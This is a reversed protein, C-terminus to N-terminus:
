PLQYRGELPIIPQFFTPLTRGAIHNAVKFNKSFQFPRAVKHRGRGEMIGFLVEDQQTKICAIEPQFGLPILAVGSIEPCNGM